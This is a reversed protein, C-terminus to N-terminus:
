TRMFKNAKGSADRSSLTMSSITKASKKSTISGTSKIRFSKCMGFPNVTICIFHFSTHFLKNFVVRIHLNKKRGWNLRTM